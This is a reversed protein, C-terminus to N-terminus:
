PGIFFSFFLKDIPLIKGGELDVRFTDNLLSRSSLPTQFFQTKRFIKLIIGGGGSMTQDKHEMSGQDKMPGLHDKLGVQEM